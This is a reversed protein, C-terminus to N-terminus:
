KCVVQLQCTDLDFYYGLKLFVEIEPAKFSGRVLRKIIKIDNGTVLNEITRCIQRCKWIPWAGSIQPKLQETLSLILCICVSRFIHFKPKSHYWSCSNPSSIPRNPFNKRKRHYWCCFAATKAVRTSAAKHTCYLTNRHCFYKHFRGQKPPLCLPKTIYFFIKNGM